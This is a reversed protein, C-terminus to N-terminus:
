KNKEIIKNFWLVGFLYHLVIGIGWGLVVYHFWIKDPKYYLNVIALIINVVIYILLHIKFIRLSDEKSCIYNYKDYDKMFSDGFYPIM